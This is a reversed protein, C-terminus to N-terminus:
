DVAECFNFCFHPVSLKSLIMPDSLNSLVKFISDLWLRGM